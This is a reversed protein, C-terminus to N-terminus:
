KVNKEKLYETFFKKFYSKNNTYVVRLYEIKDIVKNELITITNLLM